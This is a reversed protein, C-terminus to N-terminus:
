YNQTFSGYYSTGDWYLNILDIKGNTVTITPATGGSWKVSAPWTVTYSSAGQVIRIVYAGGTVPNTLTYTVSGTLTSKQASGNSWDLTKTTGSNGSDYEAPELHYNTSALLTSTGIAWASSTVSGSPMTVTGTFAPSAAPAKATFAVGNSTLTSTGTDWASSTVSGSPLTVTGTFSPSATPAKANFTSWNATSLAGRVTASATPLHFTHGGAADDVINFDAGSTGVNLTVIATPDGNISVVNGTGSGGAPLTVYSGYASFCLLLSLLLKNM